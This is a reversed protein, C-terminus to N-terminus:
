DWRTIFATKSGSKMGCASYFEQVKKDRGTLLMAKYCNRGRAHNLAHNILAKGVGQRRYDPHTVVNEILCYPAVNRTLNPIINIYCSGVVNSNKEAVTIIFYDSNLIETFRAQSLSRSVELDNPQLYQMLVLVDDHDDKTAKRILM